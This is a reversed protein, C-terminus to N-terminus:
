PLAARAVSDFMKRAKNRAKSSDKTSSMYEVKQEITIQAKVHISSLAVWFSLDVESLMRM